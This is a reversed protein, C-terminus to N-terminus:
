KSSRFNRASKGANLRIRLRLPPTGGCSPSSFYLRRSSTACQIPTCQFHNAKGPAMQCWLEKIRACAGQVEQGARLSFEIRYVCSGRHLARLARSEESDEDADALYTKGQDEVVIGRRVLQKM